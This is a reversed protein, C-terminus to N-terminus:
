KDEMKEWHKCRGLKRPIIYIDVKPNECSYFVDGLRYPSTETKFWKCNRCFQKM